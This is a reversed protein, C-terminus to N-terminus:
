DHVMVFRTGAFVSFEFGELKVKGRKNKSALVAIEGMAFFGPNTFQLRLLGSDVDYSAVSLNLWTAPKEHDFLNILKGVVVQNPLEMLIVKGEVSDLSGHYVGMLQALPIPYRQAAPKLDGITRLKHGIVKFPTLVMNDFVSGTLTGSKADVHFSLYAIPGDDGRGMGPVRMGSLDTPTSGVEMGLLTTVLSGDTTDALSVWLGFRSQPASVISLRDIFVRPNDCGATMCQVQIAYTGEISPDMVVAARLPISFAFAGCLWFILRWIKQMQMQM